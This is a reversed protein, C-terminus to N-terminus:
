ASGLCGRFLRRHRGSGGAVGPHSTNKPHFGRHLIKIFFALPLVFRGLRRVAGWRLRGKQLSDHAQFHILAPLQKLFVRTGNMSEKIQVGSYGTGSALGM